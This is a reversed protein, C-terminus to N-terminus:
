DLSSADAAFYASNFALASSYWAATALASDSRATADLAAVSFSASTSAFYLSCIRLIDSSFSPANAALTADAPRSASSIESLIM